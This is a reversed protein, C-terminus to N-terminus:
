KDKKENPEFLEEDILYRPREKSEIYTKAVYQGVVGVSLTLIGGIIWVSLMLSTWGPVVEGRVKRFISYALAIVSVVIMLIGLSIIASM